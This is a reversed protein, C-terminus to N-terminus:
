VNDDRDKRGGAQFVGRRRFAPKFLDGHDGAVQFRQEMGQTLFIAIRSSSVRFGAPCTIQPFLHSEANLQWGAGFPQDVGNLEHFRFLEDRQRLVGFTQSVVPHEAVIM